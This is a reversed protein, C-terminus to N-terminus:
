RILHRKFRVLVVHQTETVAFSTGAPSLFVYLVEFSRTRRGFCESNSNNPVYHLM